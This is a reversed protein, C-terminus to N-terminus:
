NQQTLRKVVSESCDFCPRVKGLAKETEKLADQLAINNTRCCAPTRTNNPHDDPGGHAEPAHRARRNRKEVNNNRAVSVKKRRSTPKSAADPLKQMHIVRQQHQLDRRRAEHSLFSERNPCDIAKTNSRRMFPIQPQLSWFTSAALPERHRVLTGSADKKEESKEGSNKLHRQAEITGEAQNAFKETKKESLLTM